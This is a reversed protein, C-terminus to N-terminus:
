VTQPTDAEDEPAYGFGNIAAQLKIPQRFGVMAQVVDGAREPIGTRVGPEQRHNQRYGQIQCQVAPYPVFAQALSRHGEAPNVQEQTGGQQRGGQATGGPYRSTHPAADDQAGAVAQPCAADQIEAAVAAPCPCPERGGAQQQRQSAHSGVVQLLIGGVAPQQHPLDSGAHNGVRGIGTDTGSTKGPCEALRLRSIKRGALARRLLFM